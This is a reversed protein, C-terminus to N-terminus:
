EDKSRRAQPPELGVLDPNERKWKEYGINSCKNSCYIGYYV